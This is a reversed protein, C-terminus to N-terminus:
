NGNDKDKLLDDRIREYRDKLCGKCFRSYHPKGNFYYDIIKVDHDMPKHCGQCNDLTM